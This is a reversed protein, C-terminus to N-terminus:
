LEMINGLYHRAVPKLILIIFVGALAILAYSLFAHQYILRETTLSTLQEQSVKALSGFIGGLSGGLGLTFFWTGMMFGQMNKPSLKLVAAMGIPYLFLQGLTIFLYYLVINYSHVQGSSMPFHTSVTLVGYAIGMCVLALIFKNLMPINLRPSTRLLRAFYAGVTVVFFPELSLFFTAPLHINFLTRHVVRDVFLNVALYEEFYLGWFLVSIMMLFLLLSLKQAQEKPYKTILHLFYGAISIGFLIFAINSLRSYFLLGTTIAIFILFAVILPLWPIPNPPTGKSIQLIDFSDIVYRRGYLFILLGIAIGIAALLFSTEWGFANKIFGISINALFGGINFGVFFLTYGGERKNDEKTYLNGVLTSVNPKYFGNGLVVSSLGILLSTQSGIAILGYGIILIVGGIILARSQGIIHDALYGGLLPSMYVLATYAGALAYSRSDTWQFQHVVYLVLLGQVIYFAFREWLETAILYSLGKPHHALFTHTAHPYKM